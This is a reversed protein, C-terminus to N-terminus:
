PGGLVCEHVCLPNM